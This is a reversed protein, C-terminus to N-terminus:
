QTAQSVFGDHSAAAQRLANALVPVVGELSYLRTVKARGARGFTARLEADKYLIELSRLWDEGTTALFGTEGDDVISANVGIPAAVTPLGCAMYQILKYGCKGRTWVSDPMPMIGVDFSQIADVERAEDWSHMELPVGSLPASPAGVTVLQTPWRHTFRRLPEAIEKLYSATSPTGIWGIRFLTGVRPRSTPTFWRTDVVSPIEVVYRAGAARAYEGLYSNGVVVVAALRMVTAIKRGLLLRVLHSRHHDYTHFTADDYDVVYPVRLLAPIREVLGPLWPLFEKEVWIVDYRRALITSRL